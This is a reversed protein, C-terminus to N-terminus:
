FLDERTVNIVQGTFNGLITELSVKAVKKPSLLTDEPEKGFNQFRMQTATREPNIVNVKINFTTWEESLAQVLNVIAAKSSSYTCYKARGRTYSSSTYFLLSGESKKLYNFSEKAINIAGLYNVAIEDQIDKINRDELYGINLIGATNVIYDIKGESKYVDFLAKKVLNFDSIDVGNKRSFGWVRAGYKKALTCIEKGIGRSHGFVVVVKDKILNLEVDELKLSKLQFLKDAIALDLPYTIKRNFHDGEVIYVDSLGYKLVLSCDDTVNKAESDELSLEHAKKILPLYFCQPTQGRRFFRREPIQKIFNNKDAIVITDSSPIAVDIAKHKKLAEICKDIIKSSVFPRVADHILVNAEVDKISSIGNYSSDKRTLGGQVIKIPKKFKNERLISQVKKIYNKNAVIIIENIKPHNQFVQLTHEIVTKGAIKLFQKPTDLGTREGSGSALIIAYNKM